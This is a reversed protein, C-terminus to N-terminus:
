KKAAPKIGVKKVPYRIITRYGDPNGAFIMGPGKLYEEEHAGAIEYGSAKIFDTLRKITPEEKDYGGIHLIEAVEGYEWREITVKPDLGAAEAPLTTLDSSVPLGVVAIWENRPLDPLVPWRARPAANESAPLSRYKKDIKYYITFVSKLARGVADKPVGTARAEIVQTAPKSSIAPDKLRDYSSLDPESGCSSALLLGTGLTLSILHKANMTLNQRLKRIRDLVETFM